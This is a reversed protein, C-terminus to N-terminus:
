KKTHWLEVANCKSIGQYSVTVVFNNSKRKRLAFNPAFAAYTEVIDKCKGISKKWEVIESERSISNTRTRKM